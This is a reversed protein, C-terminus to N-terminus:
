RQPEDGARDADSRRREADQQAAELKSKVADITTQRTPLPTAVDDSKTCGTFLVVTVSCVFSIVAAVTRSRSNSCNVRLM